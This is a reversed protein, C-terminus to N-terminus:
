SLSKAFLFYFVLFVLHAETMSPTKEETVNGNRRIKKLFSNVGESKQAIIQSGNEINLIM